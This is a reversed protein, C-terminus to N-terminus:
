GNDDGILAALRDVDENWNLPRLANHETHHLVCVEYGKVIRRLAAIDEPGILRHDPPVLFQGYYRITHRQKKDTVFGYREGMREAAAEIQADTAGTTRETM